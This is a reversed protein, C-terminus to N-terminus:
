LYSGAGGKCKKMVTGYLSSSSSSSSSERHHKNAKRFILLIRWLSTKVLGDIRKSFYCQGNAHQQQQQRCTIKYGRVPKLKRSWPKFGLGSVWTPQTYTCCRRDDHEGRGGVVDQAVCISILTYTDFPLRRRRRRRTMCHPNRQEWVAPLRTQTHTHQALM